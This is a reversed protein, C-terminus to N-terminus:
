DEEPEAISSTSPTATSPEGVTAKLKHERHSRKMALKNKKGFKLIPTPGNVTHM